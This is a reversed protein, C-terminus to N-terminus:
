VLVTHTHFELLQFWWPFVRLTQGFLDCLLILKLYNFIWNKKYYADRFQCDSFLAAKNQADNDNQTLMIWMRQHIIHFWGLWPSTGLLCHEITFQQSFINSELVHRPQMISVRQDRVRLVRTGLLVVALRLSHNWKWLSFVSYYFSFM